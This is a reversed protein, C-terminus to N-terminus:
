FPSQFTRRWAVCKYTFLPLAKRICIIRKLNCKQSNFWSKYILQNFSKSWWASNSGNRQWCNYWKHFLNIIWFISASSVTVSSKTKIFIITLIVNWCNRLSTRGDPCTTEYANQLDNYVVISLRRQLASYIAGININRSAKNTENKTNQHVLIVCSGFMISYSSSKPM